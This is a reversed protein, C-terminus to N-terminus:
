QWNAPWALWPCRWLVNAEITGGVPALAAGRASCSGASVEPDPLQCREGDNKGVEARGKVDDRRQV